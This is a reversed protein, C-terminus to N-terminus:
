TATDYVTDGKENKGYKAPSLEGLARVSRRIWDNWLGQKMRALNTEHAAIAQEEFPFAQEELLLEYQELELGKLNRPRESRVLAQGLDRYVNALEFTAATAVDAFGYSAARNLSDIATMTAAKRRPLTAEAPLTLAIRRASSADVRGIELAAQAAMLRTGETRGAQATADTAVLDRLWRLYGAEDRRDNLAIDALRRRAAMGRDLDGEYRAVYAEYAPAAQLPQKARDYFQAALWASERRTDGSETPRQAIRLLVAAALAPESSKEYALALKRDADAALPHEPFGTRYAELAAAARPWDQLDVLAMAADYDSKPRISAGPAVQGVRQFAASAGRLDGAARAAEGQRYVSAALREVMQPREPRDGPVAQLLTAYAKEAGPYDKQAFRADAIVGYVQAQLAPTLTANSRLTREAVAIAQAPDELAYLDEAARALGEGLHPHSPFTDALRQSAAVSARLAAPREAAPSQAAVRQWSQVAAWAAEPARAWAGSDYAARQYEEAAQRTRGGDLLADAYAMRTGARREDQPFLDLTRRYWDAARVFAAQREAGADLAQARAHHWRGLDDLHGRVTALIAPDAARGEWFSSGPAYATAYTEKARIVWEEFGGRENAAIVNAQFVPALPHRPHREVFAAYAGAADSYRKQELLTDGLNDYLLVAYRPEGKAEIRRNIAPGGGLAAFSLSTVRLSESVAEVKPRAVSALAMKADVLDGYPLDRELIAAFVDIAEEYRSEQFLTWGFKYQAPEFLPAQAGLAVLRRYNPEAEAYRHQRYLMEGARFLADAARPSAPYDKGLRALALIGADDEGLIMHARALQYLARDVQGYQPHQELLQRYLVIAQRVDQVRISGDDLQAYQVRLDAARRLAEAHVEPDATLAILKDYQARAALPDAAVAESPVIRLISPSRVVFIGNGTRGNNATTSGVTGAGATTTAVLLATALGRSVVPSPRKM